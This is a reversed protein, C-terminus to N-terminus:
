VGGDTVCPSVARVIDAIEVGLVKALPEVKEVPVRKLGRVMESFHSEGVGIQEAIWGQKLGSDKIMDRLM